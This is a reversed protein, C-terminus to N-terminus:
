EGFLITMTYSGAFMKNIIFSNKSIEAFIIEMEKMQKEIPIVYLTEFFGLGVTISQLNKLAIRLNKERLQDIKEYKQAILFQYENEKKLEKFHSIKHAELESLEFPYIWIKEKLLICDIEKVAKEFKGPRISHADQCHQHVVNINTIVEFKTDELTEIIEKNVNYVSRVQTMLDFGEMKIKKITSDM